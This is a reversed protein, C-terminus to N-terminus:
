FNWYFIYQDKPEKHECSHLNYIGVNPMKPFLCPRLFLGQVQTSFLHGPSQLHHNVVLWWRLTMLSSFFRYPSLWLQNTTEVWRFFILWFPFRGWTPTFIFFIQFWWGSLNSTYFNSVIIPKQCYRIYLQRINPFLSYKAYVFMM